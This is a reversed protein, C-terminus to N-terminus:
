WNVGTTVALRYYGDVDPIYSVHVPLSLDGAELDVGAAMIMHLWREGGSPDGLSVNPGVGLQVSRGIELGTLLNASPVFISQNMGSIMVNYTMLFDVPGGGEFVQNGEYGMVFFHEGLDLPNDQLNVWSYGSRVGHRVTIDLGKADETEIPTYEKNASGASEPEEPCGATQHPPACAPPVHDALAPAGTALSLAVLSTLPALFRSM